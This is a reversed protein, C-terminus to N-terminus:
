TWCPFGLFLGVVMHNTPSKPAIFTYNHSTTSLM